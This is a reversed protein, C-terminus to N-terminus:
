LSIEYNSDTDKPLWFKVKFSENVEVDGIKIKNKQNPLTIILKDAEFKSESLYRGNKILVDMIETKFNSTITLEMKVYPKDWYSIIKPCDLDLSVENTNVNFSRILTKEYQASLFLSSFLFVVLLILNKM